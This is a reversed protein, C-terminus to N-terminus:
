QSGGNEDLMLVKIASLNVVKPVNEDREIEMGCRQCFRASAPNFEGCRRCLSSYLGEYVARELLLAEEVNKDKATNCLAISTTEGLRFKMRPDGTDCKLQEVNPIM